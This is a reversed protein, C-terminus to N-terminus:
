QFLNLESLNSVCRVKQPMDVPNVRSVHYLVFDFISSFKEIQVDGKISM